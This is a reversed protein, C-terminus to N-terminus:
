IKPISGASQSARIKARVDDSNFSYTNLRFQLYYNGPCNLSRNGSKSVWAARGPPEQQHTVFLRDNSNDSTFEMYNQRYPDNSPIGFKQKVLNYMENVDSSACTKLEIEKLHVTSIELSYSYYYRLEISWNEMKNHCWFHIATRGYIDMNECNKAILDYPSNVNYRNLLTYKAKITQMQYVKEKRHCPQGVKGPISGMLFCDVPLLAIDNVFVQDARPINPQDQSFAPSASIVLVFALVKWIKEM